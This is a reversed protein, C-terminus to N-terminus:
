RESGAHSSILTLQARYGSFLAGQTLVQDQTIAGAAKNRKGRDRRAENKTLPKVVSKVEARRESKAFCSM